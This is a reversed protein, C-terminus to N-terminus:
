PEDETDTHPAHQPEHRADLYDGLASLRERWFRDYHALWEQAHSLPQPTLHYRRERGHRREAVLGADLLIRLHQSVAPRSVGFHRALDNVPRERETLLDLIQRRVPHAIAAFVDPQADDNM